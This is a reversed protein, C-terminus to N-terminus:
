LCFFRGLLVADPNLLGPASIALQKVKPSPGVERHCLSLPSGTQALILTVSPFGCKHCQQIEGSLGVVKMGELFLIPCKQLKKNNICKRDNIIELFSTIIEFSHIQLHIIEFESLKFHNVLKLLHHFWFDNGTKQIFVQKGLSM